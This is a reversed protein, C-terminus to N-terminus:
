PKKKEEPLVFKGAKEMAVYADYSPTWALVYAIKHTGVSLSSTRLPNGRMLFGDRDSTWTVSYGSPLSNFGLAVTDGQAYNFAALAAPAVALVLAIALIFSTLTRRM